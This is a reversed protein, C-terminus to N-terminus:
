PIPRRKHWDTERQFADAAKILAAEGFHPGVLQLSFPSKNAAFGCPFSMTPHGSMSFPSAFRVLDETAEPTMGDYQEITPVQRHMGPAAFLDIDSFLAHLRSRFDLLQLQLGHYEIANLRRGLEIVSSLATGYEERRSPYTHIHAVATQVGSLALYARAMAAVDPLRIAVIEAGCAELVKLADRIAREVPPECCGLAVAEDLGIRMGQLNGDLNSLYDPVPAQAATPDDPDPGAIAGLVAAADAASRALSGVHDFTAALEFVGARSVRGWTPKLGTVANVAAPFRISGGTDTGLAAYCLGAATAVGSGSSSAGSWLEHNWPNLPADFIPPRHQCHAGETMKLNGLFIAGAERLRRVVTSDRDAAYDRRLPMGAATKVGSIDFMDKIAIPVGHLPGGAGNRAIEAEAARAQELATEATVFVYSKLMPDLSDIRRLLAETVEVPSVERSAVLGSVGLLDLYHLDISM